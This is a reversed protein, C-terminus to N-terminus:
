KIMRKKIRDKTDSKSKSNVPRPYTWDRPFGMLFELFQPNVKGFRADDAVHSAFHLQTGLDRMCRTTLVRCYQTSNCARPTAYSHLKVPKKLIETSIRQHKDDISKDLTPGDLKPDLEVDISKLRKLPMEPSSAVYIDIGGSKKNDNACCDAFGFTPYAGMKTWRKMSQIRDQKQWVNLTNPPSRPDIITGQILYAFALRVTPPVVSNGMMHGREKYMPADEESPVMECPHEGRNDTPSGERWIKITKKMNNMKSSGHDDGVRRPMKDFKIAMGFWRRRVHWTGSDQGSFVGWTMDYGRERFLQLIKAYDEGNNSTLIAPVNEMFVAKPRYIDLLTFVNMFMKTEPHLLGERAGISSFGVCSSSSIILDVRTQSPPLKRIFEDTNQVDDIHHAKPLKGKSMLSRLVRICDKDWEAYVLPTAWGHLAYTIGGVGTFLDLSNM